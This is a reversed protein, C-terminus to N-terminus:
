KATVRDLVDTRNIFHAYATAQDADILQGALGGALERMLQGPEEAPYRPSIHDFDVRTTAIGQGGEAAFGGSVYRILMTKGVGGMGVFHLAWPQTEGSSLLREIAERQGERRMFRELFRADLRRWYELNILRKARTAASAVDDGLVPGLAEGAYVWDLAEAMRKAAVCESVRAMLWDGTRADEPARVALDAWRRLGPDLDLDVAVAEIRTGIDAARKRLAQRGRIETLTQERDAEPMWFRIDAAEEDDLDYGDGNDDTLLTQRRCVGAAVADEVWAPLPKPTPFGCAQALRGTWQPLLALWTVAETGLRETRTRRLEEAYQDIREGLVTLDASTM